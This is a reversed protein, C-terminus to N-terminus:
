WWLVVVLSLISLSLALLSLSLTKGANARMCQSHLVRTCMCHCMRGKASINALRPVISSSVSARITLIQIAIVIFIFICM